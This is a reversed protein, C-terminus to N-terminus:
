ISRGITPFASNSPALSEDLRQKQYYSGVHPITHSRLIINTGAPVPVIYIYRSTLTSIKNLRDVRAAPIGALVITTRIRFYQISPSVQGLDKSFSLGHLSSDLFVHNHTGKLM